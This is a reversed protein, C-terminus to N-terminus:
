PLPMKLIDIKIKRGELLENLVWDLSEQCKNMYSILAKAQTEQNQLLFEELREYGGGIRVIVVGAKLTCTYKCTGFLYRGEKVKIVPIGINHKSIIKSIELDLESGADATFGYPFDQFYFDDYVAPKQPAQTNFPNSLEENSSFQDQVM